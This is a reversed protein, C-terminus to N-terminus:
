NNIKCEPPSPHTATCYNYKLYYRKVIEYAHEQVQNLSKYYEGNWAYKYDHCETTNLNTAPCGDIDFGQYYAKFPGLSWDPLSGHKAWTANWITGQIEMPKTPFIPGISPDNKFVRIPIEDVFLVLQHQNWLIQYLHFYTTPDFWLSIQQERHLNGNSIVNTSLTYPPQKNGLFEFDVEDRHTDNNPLSILYFTTIIGGTDNSPLKLRIGFLGSGYRRLSRFGTGSHKDISLVIEEHQNLFQTHHSSYTINYNLEFPVHEAGSM